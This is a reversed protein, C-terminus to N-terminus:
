NMSRTAQAVREAALTTRRRSITEIPLCGAPLTTGMLASGVEIRPLTFDADRFNSLEHRTTVASRYGCAGALRVAIEDYSGFPYALEAVETGLNQELVSKSRRLEEIVDKPPLGALGRHSKAHSGIRMGASALRGIGDWGLLPLPRGCWADWIASNGVHDTPIFLTAEFGYKQLIPLAHDEFDAYIDDFTILM